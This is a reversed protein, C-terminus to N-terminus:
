KVEESDEKEDEEDDHFRSAALSALYTARKKALRIGSAAVAVTAGLVALAAKRELKTM